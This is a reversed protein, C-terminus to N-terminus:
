LIEKPVGAWKLSSLIEPYLPRSIGLGVLRNEQGSEGSYNGHDDGPKEPWSLIQGLLVRMRLVPGRALLLLLIEKQLV